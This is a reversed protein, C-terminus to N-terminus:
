RGAEVIQKLIGLGRPQLPGVGNHPIFWIGQQKDYCYLIQIGASADARYFTSAKNAELFQFFKERYIDGAYPFLQEGIAKVQDNTITEISAAIAKRRGETISDIDLNAGDM